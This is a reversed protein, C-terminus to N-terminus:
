LQPPSDIGLLGLGTSLVRAAVESLALRSDRVADDAKLVPCAEYFSTFAQALEFLYTCLKHPACGDAMANVADSFGLIAIALDREQPETLVISAGAISAPDIGAKRFMSQIRAYAYQLYPGTNGDFAVMRDLDFTYDKVRESSLDAYKVAGVGVARAIAAREDGDLDANKENVVATAREVADDILDTLKPTEGSRSKLPRGDTGLIIGFNVHEARSPAQLWKAKQAALIVQNLHQSQRSDVVYLIRTAKLERLRYRIAAMDTAGYGFGGDSKRIILPAEYGDVFICLAGSDIVAVGDRELEDVTDDLEDNYASEGRVDDDTLLVGLRAYIAVNHAHATEVFRQWVAMTEPDGAQMAVVRARARPAFEEDNAFLENAAKYFQNLDDLASEDGDDLFHEILMGYSTGWDGYHNQRIVRNGLFGLTRALSDGIITSRLHGVHMEKTITPSSYDIVVTDLEADAEVGFKPHDAAATVASALADNRIWLNIFGPGAIETREIVEDIDAAELIAAAVDRPAQGIKKALAMAANAQADAHQSPRIVPDTGAYETGFASEIAATLRATVIVFPSPAFAM